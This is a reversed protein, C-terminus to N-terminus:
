FTPVQLLKKWLLHISQILLSLEELDSNKLQRERRELIEVFIDRLKSLLNTLNSESLVDNNNKVTLYSEMLVKGYDKITAATLTSLLYTTREQKPTLLILGHVTSSSSSENIILDPDRIEDKYSAEQKVSQLLSVLAQLLIMRKNSKKNQDKKESNTSNGYQCYDQLLTSYAPLMNAIIDKGLTLSRSMIDVARSGDLRTSRDLSHLASTVYATILPVFSNWLKKRNEIAVTEVDTDDNITRRILLQLATLGTNRINEEEDVCACKSIVPLLLSLNTVLVDSSTEEIISSLGRVASLRVAGAPHHLQHSLEQLSRGRGSLLFKGTKLSSTEISQNRIQVTAAKFSTDTNNAPLLARKGVKAKRRKFDSPIHTSKRKTGSSM